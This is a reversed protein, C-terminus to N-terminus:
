RAGLLDEVCVTKNARRRRTVEQQRQQIAQDTWADISFSLLSMCSICAWKKSGEGCMSNGVVQPPSQCSPAWVKQIAEPPPPSTPAQWRGQPDATSCSHRKGPAQNWTLRLASLSASQNSSAEAFQAKSSAVRGQPM